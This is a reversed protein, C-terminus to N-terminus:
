WEGPLLTDRARVAMKRGFDGVADKYSNMEKSIKVQVNVDPVLKKVIDLMELGGPKKSYLCDMWEQSTVMNQLNSQLDVMRKLTTFNTASRTVRGRKRRDGSVNSTGERSVLMSSSAEVTDPEGLMLLGTNVDVVHNTFTDIESSIPNVNTIEDAIKQKKRKKVVVGDLSEQMLIRVDAPVRLCTSANGKQGALHEKIRHIGGGKFVKFEDFIFEM